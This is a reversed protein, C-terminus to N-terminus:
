RAISGTQAGQSALAVKFTFTANPHETVVMTMDGWSSGAASARLKELWALVALYNGQVVIDLDQRYFAQPSAPTGGAAAPLQPAGALAPLEGILVPPSTRFSLLQVAKGTENISRVLTAPNMGGNQLKAVVAQAEAIKRRMDELLAQQAMPRAQVGANASAAQAEQLMAIEKKQSEIARGQALNHKKLPTLVALDFVFVSLTVAVFFYTVAEKAPMADFKKMLPHKGKLVSSGFRGVKHKFENFAIPM